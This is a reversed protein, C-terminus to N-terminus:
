LELYHLNMYQSPSQVQGAHYHMLGDAQLLTLQHPEQLKAYVVKELKNGENKGTYKLYEIAADKLFYIKTANAAPVFFM